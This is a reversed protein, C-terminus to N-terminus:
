DDVEKELAKEYINILKNTRDLELNLKNASNLFESNGKDRVKENDDYIKKSDKELDKSLNNMKEVKIDKYKIFSDLKDPNSFNNILNSVMDDKDLMDYRVDDMIGDIISEDDPGGVEDKIRKTISEIDKDLDASTNELIRNSFNFGKINDLFSM